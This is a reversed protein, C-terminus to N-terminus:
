GFFIRAEKSHCWRHARQSNCLALNEPRNDLKELNVHHVVEGKALRRGLTRAMNQRHTALYFNGIRIKEYHDKRITGGKWNPNKDGLKSLRIKACAEPSHYHGLNGPYHRRGLNAARIKARWEPSRNAQAARLKARTEESPHRGRNAAGIRAKQEASLPRRSKGTRSASMKARAEASMHGGLLKARIKARTEENMPPRLKAIASMKAKTEPSLRRGKGSASMRARTADSPHKGWNPNKEGLKEARNKARGEASMM